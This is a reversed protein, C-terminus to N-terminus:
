WELGAWNEGWTVVRGPRGVHESGNTGRRRLDTTRLREPVLSQNQLLCSKWLHPKPTIEPHNLRMVKITCGRRLRVGSSIQYSTSDTAWLNPVGAEYVQKRNQDRPCSTGPWAM